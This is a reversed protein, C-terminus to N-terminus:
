KNIFEPVDYIETLHLKGFDYFDPITMKIGAEICHENGNLLKFEDCSLRLSIFIGAVPDYMENCNKVAEAKNLVDKFTYDLDAGYGKIIKYVTHPITGCPDCAAPIQVLAGTDSHPKNLNSEKEKNKWEKYEEPLCTVIDTVEDMTVKIRQTFRFETTGAKLSIHSATAPGAIETKYVKASDEIDCTYDSIWKQAAVLANVYAERTYQIDRIKDREHSYYSATGELIASYKNAPIIENNVKSTVKM